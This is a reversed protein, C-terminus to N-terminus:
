RSRGSAPNLAKLAELRPRLEKTNGLAALAQTEHGILVDRDAGIAAIGNRAERLEREHEGRHHLTRTAFEWTRPAKRMYSKALMVTMAEYAGDLRNLRYADQVMAGFTGLETARRSARLSSELDGDLWARLFDYNALDLPLLRGKMPELRRLLSDSRPPNQNANWETAAVWFLAASSTSDLAVARYFHQLAPM